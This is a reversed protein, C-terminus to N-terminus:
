LPPFLKVDYIGEEVEGNWHVVCDFEISQDGIMERILPAHARSIYGVRRQDVMVAVANPDFQNGPERAIWAKCRVELRGDNQDVLWQINEAHHREGAVVLQEPQFIIRRSGRLSFM